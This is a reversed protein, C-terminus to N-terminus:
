WRFRRPQAGAPGGEARRLERRVPLPLLHLSRGWKQGKQHPVFEPHDLVIDLSLMRRRIVEISAQRRHRINPIELARYLKKGFIQCICRGEKILDRAIPKGSFRADLLAHAFRTANSPHVGLFRELQTRTFLGSHLCVLAIWEAQQPTFGLPQLLKERGKLHPFKM